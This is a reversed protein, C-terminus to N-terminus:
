FRIVKVTNPLAAGNDDKAGCVQSVSLLSSSNVNFVDLNDCHGEVESVINVCFTGCQSFTEQRRPERMWRTKSGKLTIFDHYVQRTVTYPTGLNSGLILGALQGTWGQFSVQVLGNEFQHVNRYAINVMDTGSTYHYLMEGELGVLLFHASDLTLGSLPNLSSRDGWLLTRGDAGVSHGKISELEDNVFEWQTTGATDTARVNHNGSHFLVPNGLSEGILDESSVTLAFRSVENLNGDYSVVSRGSATQVRAVLTSHGFVRNVAQASAVELLESSGTEVDLLLIWGQNSSTGFAAVKGGLVTNAGALARAGLEPSVMASDLPLVTGTNTDVLLSAALTNKVILLRQGSLDLVKSFTGPMVGSAIDNEVAGTDDFYTIHIGDSRGSVHVVDGEADVLVENLSDPNVSVTSMWKAATAVCGWVGAALVLPLGLRFLPKCSKMLLRMTLYSNNNNNWGAGLFRAHSILKYDCRKTGIAIAQKGKPRFSHSYKAKGKFRQGGGQM